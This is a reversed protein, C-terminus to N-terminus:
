ITDVAKLLEIFGISNVSERGVLLGNVQGQRIIDGANKFNVSGGYLIPVNLVESQGFMDSIVKKIFLTMELIDAPGMAEKAGIAWIPEYAIILKNVTKKTVKSLSNKIQEKIFNLYNGNADREKEGICVISYMGADLLLHSKKAIDEDTEGKSRRESHGVIVHTIGIDKLMKVSIEGTFAGQEESFVNQAGILVKNDKNKKIFPQQYIFPPCLVIDTSNLKDSFRKISNFIKLAESYSAPNMKWNGIVIKKM